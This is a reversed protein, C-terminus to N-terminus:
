ARGETIATRLSSFKFNLETVLANYKIQNQALQSMESDIDVNNGNPSYVTDTEQVVVPQLQQLDDGVGIPIHRPNTRFGSLSAKGQLYDQLMSEFSVDSRKFNPTDVNAINNALVNQRLQAADLARQLILLDQTGFLNM